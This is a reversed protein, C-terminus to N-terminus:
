LGKPPFNKMLKAVVKALTKLNKQENGSPNVTKTTAGQWILQKAAPDYIDLIMTGNSITSTTATGMGGFRLGGTGFANWQRERDVAIQYCVYIDAAESDSKAFGKQLLQGDVDQMIEQDTIRGPHEGGCNVWKYTHYKAFNAGPMSNYRVDQALGIACCCLLSVCLRAVTEPAKRDKASTMLRADRITKMAIEGKKKLVNLLEISLTTGSSNFRYRVLASKEHHGRRSFAPRRAVPLARLCSGVASGSFSAPFLRLVKGTWTSM